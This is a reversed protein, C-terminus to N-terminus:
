LVDEHDLPGSCLVRGFGAIIDASRELQVGGGTGRQEQCGKLLSCAAADVRVGLPRDQHSQQHLAFLPGVRGKLNAIDLLDLANGAALALAHKSVMVSEANGDDIVSGKFLVQGTTQLSRHVFVRIGIRHKDSSMSHLCHDWEPGDM